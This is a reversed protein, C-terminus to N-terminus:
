TVPIEIRAALPTVLSAGVILALNSLSGARPPAVAFHARPL